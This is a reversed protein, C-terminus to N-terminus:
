RAHRAAHTIAGHPRRKAYGARKCRELAGDGSIRPGQRHHRLRLGDGREPAHFDRQHPECVLLAVFTSRFAASMRSVVARAVADLKAAARVDEIVQRLIQHADYRERFFRRDLSALALTWSASLVAM